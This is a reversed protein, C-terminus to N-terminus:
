LKEEPLVAGFKLNERSICDNEKRRGGKDPLGLGDTVPSASFLVILYYSIRM